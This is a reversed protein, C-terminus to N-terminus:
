EVPPAPLALFRGRLNELEELKNNMEKRLSQEKEDIGRLAQQILTADDRDFCLTIESFGVLIWGEPLMDINEPVTCVHSYREEESTAFRYKELAQPSTCWLLQRM